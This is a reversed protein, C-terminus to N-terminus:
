NACNIKTSGAVGLGAGSLKVPDDGAGSLQDEASVSGSVKGGAAELLRQSRRTLLPAHGSLVFPTPGQLPGGQAAGIPLHFQLGPARLARGTGPQSAGLLIPLHEPGRPGWKKPRSCSRSAPRPSRTWAASRRRWFCGRTRKWGCLPYGARDTRTAASEKRARSTECSMRASKAGHAGASALDEARLDYLDAV